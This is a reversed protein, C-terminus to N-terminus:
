HKIERFNSKFYNLPFVDEKGNDSRIAKIDFGDFETIKVKLNGNNLQFDYEKLEEAEKLIQDSVSDALTEAGDKCYACPMLGANPGEGNYMMGTGGCVKCFDTVPKGSTAPVVKRIVEKRKENMKMM